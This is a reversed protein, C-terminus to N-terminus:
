AQAAAGQPAEQAPLAEGDPFYYPLSLRYWNECAGLRSLISNLGFTIRNLMLYDPPMNLRTMNDGFIQALAQKCYEPTFRFEEDRLIPLYFWRAYDWLWDKDVKGEYGPKIFRMRCFQEFYADKEGRLYARNLVQFNAIFDPDFRKVCGFDLFAVRGDDLFLYNGPHPDGNFVHHFWLSDFVFERIILVARKKQAETGAAVFDYFNRGAVFDSTLVRRTSFRAHVRPVVIHPKGAFLTHFLQQHEAELRYDLEELLRARLEEVIPGADVNPTVVRAMAMLMSANALDAGIAADVGPYQVKVVVETGDFLRARHVQGISAAALPTREFRAFLADPEKGLEARIVQAVAEYPMPPAQAQLKALQEQYAAPLSEDMFSAIQGLKMLAGKMNGMAELVHRATEDHYKQELEARKKESSVLRRLTRALWRGAVRFSAAVLRVNRGLRSTVIGAESRASTLAYALAFLLAVVLPIVLLITLWPVARCCLAPICAGRGPNCNAPMAAGFRM